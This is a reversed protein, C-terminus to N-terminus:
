NFKGRTLNKLNNITVKLYPRIKNLCEEVPLTKNKDGNSKYETYTDSWVNSVIVPNYYNEEEENEFIELIELYQIQLQQM